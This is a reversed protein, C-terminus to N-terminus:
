VPQLPNVGQGPLQATSGKGKGFLGSAGAALSDLGGALNQWGQGKLAMAYNYKRQWDQRTNLDFLNHKWGAVSNNVGILYKQNAIRMGANTADLNGMADNTTRYVSPLAALGSQRGNAYRIASVQQRQINRMAQNYQESPMGGGALGQATRQNQLIEDPMQEQPYPGAKKLLRGAKHMQFVGAGAKLVGAALAIPNVPPM